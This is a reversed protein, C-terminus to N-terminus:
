KEDSKSTLQANLMELIQSNQRLFQIQDPLYYLRDLNAYQEHLKANSRDIGALKLIEPSIQDAWDEIKSRRGLDGRSLLQSLKENSKLASSVRNIVWHKACYGYNLLDASAKLIDDDNVFATGWNSERSLSDPEKENLAAMMDGSWIMKLDVPNNEGLAKMKEPMEQLMVFSLATVDRVLGDTQETGLFSAWSKDTPKEQLQSLIENYVANLTPLLSRNVGIQKLDDDSLDVTQTPFNDSGHVYHKGLVANKSQRYHIYYAPPQKLDAMEILKDISTRAKAVKNDFTKVGIDTHFGNTALNLYAIWKGLGTFTTKPRDNATQLMLGRRTLSDLPVPNEGLRDQM